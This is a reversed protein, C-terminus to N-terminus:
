FCREFFYFAADSSQGFCRSKTWESEAVVAVVVVVVFLSQKMLGVMKMKQEVHSEVLRQRKPPLPAAAGSPSVQPWDALM